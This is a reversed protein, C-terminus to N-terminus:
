QTIRLFNPTLSSSYTPLSACTYGASDPYWVQIAQNATKAALLTAYWAKCTDPGIGNWTSQVNCIFTFDNRWSGFITVNSGGYILMDSVNGSCYIDAKAVLPTLVALVAGICLVARVENLKYM